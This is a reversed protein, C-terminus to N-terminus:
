LKDVSQTLKIVMGRFRQKKEIICFSTFCIKAYYVSGDYSTCIRALKKSSM